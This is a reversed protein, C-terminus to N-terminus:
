KRIMQSSYYKQLFSYIVLEHNRNRSRFWRNMTMHQISFLLDDLSIPGINNKISKIKCAINAFYKVRNKLIPEYPILGDRNSLKADITNFYIRYKDNIQKTFIHDTFNFERKFSNAISSTLKEKESLTYDFADYTDDLLILALLWRTQERITIPESFLNTLLQIISLSDIWFLEEILNITADGYREIERVYTDCQIKSIQGNTIKPYMIAYFSHFVQSYHFPELLHIRYRIHFDPDNYRIFFYKDIINQSYLTKSFDWLEQVLINDATKNGTYLKFFLWSSGPIFSRQIM